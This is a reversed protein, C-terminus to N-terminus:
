QTDVYLNDTVPTVIFCSHGFNDLQHIVLQGLVPQGRDVRVVAHEVGESVGLPPAYCAFM